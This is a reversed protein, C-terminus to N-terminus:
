ASELTRSPFARVALAHLALAAALYFATSRVFLPGWQWARALYQSWHPDAYRGGFWYFAGNSVLFSAAAAAVGLLLAAGLSAPRASLRPAYARAPYWLLAYALPLAAYAATVCFDSVGALAIAAWDILLALLLLAIFAAHRRLYLGGVFFLAMSADPLHLADGFHHFRTAVMTAAVAVCIGAQAYPARASM